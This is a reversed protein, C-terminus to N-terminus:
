SHAIRANEERQQLYKAHALIKVFILFFHSFSCFKIFNVSKKLIFNFIKSKKSKELFQMKQNKARKHLM